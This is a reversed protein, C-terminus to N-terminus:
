VVSKGTVTGNNDEVRAEMLTAEELMFDAMIGRFNDFYKKGRAEGILDAMDDMTKASGIARRLDIAPVVVTADWTSITEEMEGLLKVQAPNDSVTQQLESLLAGFKEKGGKYPDLFSDEGALLYGRMGTEMDAAYSLLENIELLVVYTHEVMKSARASSGMSKKRKELLTTERGAFTAIQGRFKDFFVKGRAEGVLAAMDNMTKANGIERRLQITPETVDAQWAKLVKEVETLRAVQKPNDSVTTQLSSISTYTATEGGNYPDLFGEKGALLYGRMGTEMDVASGVIGAAQALVKHTHDVRENSGVISRLNVVTIVALLALLVLPSCAGILIKTQTKLNTFNM